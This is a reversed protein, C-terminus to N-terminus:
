QRKFEGSGQMNGIVPELLLPLCEAVDRGFAFDDPQIKSLETEDEVEPKVMVVHAGRLKAESIYGAAPWVKASTGVVM